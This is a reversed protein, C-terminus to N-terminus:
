QKTSLVGQLTNQLDRLSYPKNLVATFGYKRFNAMISDNAYGSSVVAKVQPDKELLKKMAEMGGMGGPVTLDLIVADVPKGSKGTEFYKEVAEAGDRTLVVDYGLDALTDRLLDRVVEEDDMVLIKGRVPPNRGFSKEENGDPVPKLSAPLYIRCITGVNVESEVAIHGGHNKIIAFSTALGLGVGRPKTTFYPDFIKGCHEKSIGIGHDEIIVEVYTGEPLPLGSENGIITNRASINIQGGQPMAQAANIVVNSIVQSIQGEDAEAAYLDGSISFEPRASSGRLAFAASDRVVQEVSIVKKVPAGGKSFTLLQQTLDKARLCAKESEMLRDYVGDIKGTEMRSVALQINGMIGTLLNNFDHAIGGALTGVSELKSLKQREQEMRVRETIDRQIGVYSSIRGDRDRIPTVKLENLFATGDKRRSLRTGLWVKGSATTKHIDEYDESLKARLVDTKLGIVEDAGYGFLDQAAKNIYTIRRETDSVVVADSVQETISSLFRLREEARKRETIDRTIGLAAWVKGSEDRVPSLSTTIWFEKDRVVMRREVQLNEGTRFVQSLSGTYEAALDAPFMDTVRKGEIESPEKGWLRAGARNVSLVRSHEGIMFIFDNANEVVTRYKEESDRLAKEMRKRETIDIIFGELAESQGRDGSIWVGQEWVWKEQCPSTIIRYEVQFPRNNAVATQIEGSVRERDDPHIIRAYPVASDFLLAEPHYGTLAYCGDSVFELTGNRNNRRRYVVGPLNTLLTAMVRRREVLKATRGAVFDKVRSQYGYLESFTLSTFYRIFVVALLFLTLNFFSEQATPAMWLGRGFATGLSLTLALVLAGITADIFHPHILMLLLLPFVLLAAPPYWILSAVLPLMPLTNLFARPVLNQRWLPSRHKWAWYLPGVLLLGLSDGVTIYLVRQLMDDLASPSGTLFAPILVVLWCTLVAPLLCVNTFFPIIDLNRLFLTHGLRKETWRSARYALFSQLAGTCASLIAFSLTVALPFRSSPVFFPLNVALSAFAVWFFARGGLARFALLGVGSAFWIITLNGPPLSVLEIGMYGAGIYIASLVAGLALNKIVGPKNRIM